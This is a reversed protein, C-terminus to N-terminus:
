WCSARPRRWPWLDPTFGSKAFPTPSRGPAREKCRGQRASPEVLVNLGVPKSSWKCEGVLLAKDTDSIAVLDIEDDHRWWRGVREPLFPLQGNHALRTVYAHAAEELAHGVFADFVPQVRQSLIADTLGLELSGRYPHVFRFWFHLFADEIQYIGKKSKEPQRETVPVLRRM